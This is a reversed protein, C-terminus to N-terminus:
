SASPAWVIPVAEEKLRGAERQYWGAKRERWAGRVKHM